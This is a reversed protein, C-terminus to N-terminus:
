DVEDPAHLTERVNTLIRGMLNEGIWLDTNLAEPSHLPVGTGFKRNYCSEAIAKNGTNQLVKNLTLNQSFKELIGEYCKDEAVENWRSIDYNKINQALQKCEIASDSALIKLAIQRDNFYEAKKLQIFQEACHFWRNDVIFHSRHFNSVPNLEGFFGVASHDEKSTIKYGSLDKPLEKINDWSYHKGKIVLHDGELHCRKHYGTKNNAARLIPKLFKHENETHEGFEKNITIGALPYKRNTLIEIVDRHHAFTVSIPRTKNQSYRGKCVLKEIQIQRAQQVQSDYTPGIFTTSIIDLITGYREYETEGDKENIGFFLM